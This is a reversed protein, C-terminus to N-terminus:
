VTCHVHVTCYTSNFCNLYIIFQIYVFLFFFCDSLCCRNYLLFINVILSESSCLQRDFLDFFNFELKIRTFYLYTPRCTFHRQRYTCSFKITISVDPLMYKENISKQEDTEEPIDFYKVFVYYQILLMLVAGIVCCLMCLLFLSTLDM